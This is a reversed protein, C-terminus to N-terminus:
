KMLSAIALAEELTLEGEVVTIIGDQPWILAGSKEISEIKNPSSVFVGDLGNVSVEQTSGDINPVLMTRQWDDVAALKKRFDEPLVELGLLADRITDVDVEGPVMIEPSRAQAIDLPRSGQDVAPYEARIMTPIGLIFTKGDITEPLLENGGFSTILSNVKEVDLNLKVKMSSQMSITPSGFGDVPTGPIKLSFDVAKQAEELSVIKTEEKGEVAVEGFNEINVEEGGSKMVEELRALDRPTINVTEIRDMRFISLFDAVSARVPAFSLLAALSIMTALVAAIKGYRRMYQGVGESLHRRSEGAYEKTFRKWAQKTNPKLKQNISNYGELVSGVMEDQKKLESFINQCEKCNELHVEIEWRKQQTVESDLYTQLEDQSYCM